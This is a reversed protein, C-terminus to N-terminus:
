HKERRKKEDRWPRAISKRWRQGVLKLYHVLKSTLIKSIFKNLIINLINAGVTRKSMSQEMMIMLHIPVIQFKIM